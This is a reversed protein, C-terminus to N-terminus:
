PLAITSHEPQTEDQAQKPPDVPDWSNEYTEVGM